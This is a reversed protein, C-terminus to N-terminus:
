RLAAPTLRDIPGPSGAGM